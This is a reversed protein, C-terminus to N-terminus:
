LVPDGSMSVRGHRDHLRGLTHEIMRTLKDAAGELAQDFSESMETVAIPQHGNLRAEMVCRKDKSGSKAHSNEDTLHVEVRTIRDAFNSLASEVISEVFVTLKESGTLHNDTTLQIQM